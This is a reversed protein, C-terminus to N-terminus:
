EDAVQTILTVTNGTMEGQAITITKGLRYALDPGGFHPIETGTEDYAYWYYVYKSGDQDVESGRTFVSATLETSTQTSSLLLGTRTVVSVVMPSDLNRLTYYRIDTEYTNSVILKYTQINIIESPLTTISISANVAQGFDASLTYGATAKTIKRWGLGGASDYGVNSSDTVTPDQKFLKFNHIDTSIQGSRYVDGVINIKDPIHDIILEGNLAQIDLTIGARATEVLSLKLNTTVTAKRTKLPDSYTATVYIDDVKSTLDINKRITLVNNSITYGTTATDITTLVGNVMHAWKFNSLRNSVDVTTGPLYGALTLTFPTTTFDPTYGSTISNYAQTIDDSPILVPNVDPVEAKITIEVAGPLVSSVGDEKDPLTAKFKASGVVDDESVVLTRKNKNPNNANWTADANTDGSVRTWLVDADELTGTIDLGNRLARIALTVTASSGEEIETQDDTVVSVLYTTTIDEGGILTNLKNNIKTVLDQLSSMNQSLNNVTTRITNLDSTANILDTIHGSMNDLRAGLSAYTAGTSNDLRSAIIEDSLAKFSRADAEIKDLRDGLSASDGAANNIMTTFKTISKTNDDVNELLANYQNLILQGNSSVSDLLALSDALDSKMNDVLNELDTIRAPVDEGVQTKLTAVDSELADIAEQLADLDTDNGGVYLAKGDLLLKGASDLTLRHLGAQLYANSSNVGVENASTSSANYKKTDNQVRIAAHTPDQLRVESRHTDTADNAIKSASFSSDDDFLINTKSTAFTANHQFMVQPLEPDEPELDRGRLHIRELESYDYGYDNLRGSGLMGTASKLFSRGQLTTERDGTGSVWDYTQSPYLVLNEMTSRRNNEDADPSGSILNTPALEYAVSPDKYIGVIIPATLDEELFGVLAQDGINIPITEGYTKGDSYSGGFRVPLRASFQGNTEQSKVLMEHNKVTQLEVTNYLYNVSIVTAMILRNPNVTGVPVTDGLLAQTRARNSLQKSYQVM